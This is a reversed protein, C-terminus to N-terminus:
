EEPPPSVRGAEALATAAEDHRRLAELATALCHLSVTLPAGGVPRTLTVAEEALPLAELARRRRLLQRAGTLLCRALLEAHEGPCRKDLARCRAVAEKGADLARGGWRRRSAALALLGEIFRVEAACTHTADDPSYRTM